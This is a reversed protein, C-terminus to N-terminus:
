SSHRESMGRSLKRREERRRRAEDRWEKREEGCGEGQEREPM